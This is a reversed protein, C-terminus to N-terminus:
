IPVNDISDVLGGLQASRLKVHKVAQSRMTARIFTAGATRADISAAATLVVRTTETRRITTIAVARRIAIGCGHAAHVALATVERATHHQAARMVAPTSYTRTRRLWPKCSPRVIPLSVLQVTTVRVLMAHSGALFAHAM